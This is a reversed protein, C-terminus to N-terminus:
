GLPFELFGDGAEDSAALQQPIGFQFPQFRFGFVDQAFQSFEPKFGNRM